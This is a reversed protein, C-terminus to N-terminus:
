VGSCNLGFDVANESEISLKLESVGLWRIVVSVCMVCMCCEQHFFLIFSRFLDNEITGLTRFVFSKSHLIFTNKTNNQHVLTYILQYQVEYIARLSKWWKKEINELFTTFLSKEFNPYIKQDPVLALSVHFANYIIPIQTKYITFPCLLNGFHAGNTDSWKYNELLPIQRSAALYALFFHARQLTLVFEASYNGSISDIIEIPDNNQNIDGTKHQHWVKTLLNELPIFSLYLLGYLIAGADSAM